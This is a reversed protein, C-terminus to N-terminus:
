ALMSAVVGDCHEVYRQILKSLPIPGESGIRCEIGFKDDPIHALVHILLHNLSVWLDVIEQWAYDSYKQASVWDDQPSGRAVLGGETLARAFWEHHAGAWDVPHGLAQKRTCPRVLLPQEGYVDAYRKLHKRAASVTDELSAISDELWPAIPQMAAPAEGSVIPRYWNSHIGYKHLIRAGACDEIRLLGLTLHSCDVLKYGLREEASYELARKSAASLPLDLTSVRRDRPPLSQEIEARIAEPIDNPLVGLLIRDEKLLSLLLHEVEILSSGRHSAEYRALFIAGRARETYREFM